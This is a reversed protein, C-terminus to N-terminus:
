LGATARKIILCVSLLKQIILGSNENQILSQVNRVLGGESNNRSRLVCVQAKQSLCIHHRKM